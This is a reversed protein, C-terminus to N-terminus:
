FYKFTREERGSSVLQTGLVWTLFCMIVQFEMKLSGLMRIKGRCACVRIHVCLCVCVCVCVCVCYIYIYIYM